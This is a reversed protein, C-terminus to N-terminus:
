FILINYVTFITSCITFGAAFIFAPLNKRTLSFILFDLSPIICIILANVIHYVGFYAVGWSIFYMLKPALSAYLYIKKTKLKAEKNIIFTISIVLLVNFVIEFIDNIPTNSKIEIPKLKPLAIWILFPGIFALFMLLGRWDFGLKYNKFKFM